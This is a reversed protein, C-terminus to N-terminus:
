SFFLKNQIIKEIEIVSNNLGAVSFDSKINSVTELWHVLVETWKADDFSGDLKSMYKKTVKDATDNILKCLISM